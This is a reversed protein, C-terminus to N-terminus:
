PTSHGVLPFVVGGLQAETFFAPTAFGPSPVGQLVQNGLLGSAGFGSSGSALVFSLLSVGLANLDM